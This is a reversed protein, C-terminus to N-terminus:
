LDQARNIPKGNTRLRIQLVSVNLFNMEAHWDAIEVHIGEYREDQTFGNSTSLIGNVAREVTLQDGVVGVAHYLKVKNVSCSPVYSHIM